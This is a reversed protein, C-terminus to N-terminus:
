SWPDLTNIWILDSDCRECLVTRMAPKATTMRTWAQDCYVTSEAAVQTDYEFNVLKVVPKTYAKKM